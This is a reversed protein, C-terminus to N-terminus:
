RLAVILQIVPEPCYAGVLISIMSILVVCKCSGMSLLVPNLCFSYVPVYIAGVSNLSYRVILSMTVCYVTGPLPLILYM